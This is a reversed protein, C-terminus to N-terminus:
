LYVSDNRVQIKVGKFEFQTKVPGKGPVTMEITSEKETVGDAALEKLIRRLEALPEPHNDVKLIIMPEKVQYTWAFASLDIFDADKFGPHSKVRFKERDTIKSEILQHLEAAIAQTEEHRPAWESSPLTEARFKPTSTQPPQRYNFVPSSIQM